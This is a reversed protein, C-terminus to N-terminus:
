AINEIKYFKNADWTAGNKLMGYVCLLLKKMVAVIAQMKKKGKGTLMTYFAKVNEQHRIASMAPMFLAARLRKNGAKSIRRPKNMSSGSEKPKPDLGAFAVLQSPTLDDPMNALEAIILAASIDGIGKVSILLEKQKKYVEHQEIITNLLASLEDIHKTLQKVHQRMNKEIAKWAESRYTNNTLRARERARESTLQNIRHTLALIEQQELSPAQWTKFPMRQVYTLITKADVQDTKARTHNAAAFSKMAHPNVVMVLISSQQSLCAALNQHYIGTAEMCVKVESPKGKTVFRLLKKHGSSTNDFEGDRIMNDGKDIAVSLTKKSVDIGVHYLKSKSM